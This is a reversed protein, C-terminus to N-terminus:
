YPRTLMDYVVWSLMALVLLGTLRAEGVGSRKSLQREIISNPPRLWRPFLDYHTPAFLMFTANLAIVLAVAMGLLFLPTVRVAFPTALTFLPANM